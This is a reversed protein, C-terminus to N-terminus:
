KGSGNFNFYELLHYVKVPSNLKRPRFGIVISTGIIYRELRFGYEMTIVIGRHTTTMATMMTLAARVLLLLYVLRDTMEKGM